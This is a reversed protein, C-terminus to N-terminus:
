RAKVCADGFFTILVSRNIKGNLAHYNDITHRSVRYYPLDVNPIIILRVEGRFSTIIEISRSIIRSSNTRM